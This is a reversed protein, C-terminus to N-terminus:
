KRVWVLSIPFGKELLADIKEDTDYIANNVLQGGHIYSGKLEYKRGSVEPESRHLKDYLIVAEDHYCNKCSTSRPSWEPDQSNAIMIVFAKDEKTLESAKKLAIEKLRNLTYDDM